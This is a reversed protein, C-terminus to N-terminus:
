GLDQRKPTNRDWLHTELLKLPDHKIKNYSWKKQQQGNENIFAAYRQNNNKKSL